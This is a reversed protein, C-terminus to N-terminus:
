THGLERCYTRNEEGWCRLSRVVKTGEALLALSPHKLFWNKDQRSMTIGVGGM